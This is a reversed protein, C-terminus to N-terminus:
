SNLGFVPGCPGTKATKPRKKVVFDALTMKQWKLFRYKKAFLTKEQERDSVEVIEVVLVLRVSM